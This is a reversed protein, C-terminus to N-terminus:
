QEGSQRAAAKKRRHATVQSLLFLAACVAWAALGAILLPGVGAAYLGTFPLLFFLVLPLALYGSRRFADGPGLAYPSFFLQFVVGLALLPPAFWFVAALWEWDFFLPLGLVADGAGVCVSFALLSFVSAIAAPLACGCLRAWLPMSAKGGPASNEEPSSFEWAGAASGALLPVLLFFLMGVQDTLAAFLVQREAFGRLYSPILQRLVAASGPEEPALFALALLVLPIGVSFAALLLAFAARTFKAKGARKGVERVQAWKEGANREM